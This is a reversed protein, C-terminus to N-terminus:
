LLVTNISDFFEAFNGTLLLLLTNIIIILFNKSIEM